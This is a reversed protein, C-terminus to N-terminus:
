TTYTHTALLLMAISSNSKLSLQVSQRRTTPECLDLNIDFGAGLKLAAEMQTLKYLRATFNIVDGDAQCGFCHFHKDVKM